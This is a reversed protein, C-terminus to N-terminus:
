DVQAIAAARAPELYGCHPLEVGYGVPVSLTEILSRRVAWEGGAAAGGRVARGTCTSCHGAVLETVRGGQPLPEAAAEPMDDALRDYFGKGPPKESAFLPRAPRDRLAPWEHSATSSFWCNASTVFLSKWLAEGQQCRPIATDVDSRM